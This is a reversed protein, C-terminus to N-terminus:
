GSHCSVGETCTDSNILSNASQFKCLKNSVNNYNQNCTNKQTDDTSVGIDVSTCSGVGTRGSAADVSKTPLDPNPGHLCTRKCGDYVWTSGASCTRAIPTGGYEPTDCTVGSLPHVGDQFDSVSRLTELSPSGSYGTPLRSPPNCTKEECCEIDDCDNECVKNKLKKGAPCTIKFDDGEKDKCTQRIFGYYGILGSVVGLLCILFIALAIMLGNSSGQTVVGPGVGGSFKLSYKRPM